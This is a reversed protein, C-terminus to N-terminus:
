GGVTLFASTNCQHDVALFIWRGVLRRTITRTWLGPGGDPRHLEFVLGSDPNVALTYNPDLGSGTVTMSLRMGDATRAVKPRSVVPNPVVRNPLGFDITATQHDRLAVIRSVYIRGPGYAKLLYQGVPAKPLRYRGQADTAAVRYHEEGGPENVGRLLLTVIAGPLPRHQQDEVVGQITANGTPYDPGAAVPFPAPAGPTPVTPGVTRGSSNRAGQRIWAAVVDIDAQEMRGAGQPMRAGISPINGLAPDGAIKQFLFSREPDGAIVRIRQPDELARVGVLSAYEHGPRLDLSPNIIPHCAACSYKVFVAQVQAFRVPSAARSAPESRAARSDSGGRSVGAFAVALAAVFALALM